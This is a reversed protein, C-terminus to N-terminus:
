VHRTVMGDVTLMQLKLWNYLLCCSANGGDVVVAALLAQVLVPIMAVLLVTKCTM